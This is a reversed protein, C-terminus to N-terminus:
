AAGNIKEYEFKVNQFLKSKRGYGTGNGNNVHVSDDARESSPTYWYAFYLIATIVIGILVVVGVVILAIATSSLASDPTPTTTQTLVATTTMGSTTTQCFACQISFVFLLVVLLQCLSM